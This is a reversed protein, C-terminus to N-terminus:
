LFFGNGKFAQIIHKIQGDDTVEKHTVVLPKNAGLLELEFPLHELAKNGSCTKVPCYFEYDDPLQM